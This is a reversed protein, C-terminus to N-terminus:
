PMKIEGIPIYKNGERIYIIRGKAPRFMESIDIKFYDAFKQLMEISPQNRGKNIGSITNESIGLDKALQKGTIEHEQM